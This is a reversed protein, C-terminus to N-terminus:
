SCHLIIVHLLLLLIHHDNIIWVLYHMGGITTQKAEAERKRRAEKLKALLGKEKTEEM